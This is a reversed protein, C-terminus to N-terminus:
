SARFSPSSYWIGILLAIWVLIALLGVSQNGNSYMSIGGVVSLVGAIGLTVNAWTKGITFAIGVVIYVVGLVMELQSGSALLAFLGLVAAAVGTIRRVLVRDQM